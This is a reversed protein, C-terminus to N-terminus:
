QNAQLFRRGGLPVFKGAKREVTVGPKNGVKKVSGTLTATRRL